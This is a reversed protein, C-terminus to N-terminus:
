LRRRLSCNLREIILGARMVEVQDSSNLLREVMQDCLARTKGDPGAALQDIVFFLGIGLALTLLGVGLGGFLPWWDRLALARYSM